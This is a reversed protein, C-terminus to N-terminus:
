EQHSSRGLPFFNWGGGEGCVDGLGGGQIVGGGGIKLLVSGGAAVQEPAEEEGGSGFLCFISLIRVKTPMEASYFCISSGGWFERAVSEGKREGSLFFNFIDSVDVLSVLHKIRCRIHGPSPDVTCHFHEGGAGPLRFREKNGVRHFYVCILPHSPYARPVARYKRWVNGNDPM